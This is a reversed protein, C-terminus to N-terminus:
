DLMPSVNHFESNFHCTWANESRWRIRDVLGMFVPTRAVSFGAVLILTMQMAFSLLNWFGDQWYGLMAVPAQGQFVIGALFVILTIFLVLILPDPMYRDFANVFGNTFTKFM